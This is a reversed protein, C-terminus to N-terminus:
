DTTQPLRLGISEKRELTFLLSAQLFNKASGDDAKRYDFQRLVGIQMGLLSTFQYGLGAFFRNREFYPAQNTFFLEDFVVGYLTRPIIKNHNIPIVPNLRYRFRNRYNGNVWRQEIRFRHDVVVPDLKSKFSFQQWLRFEKTQLSKFEGPYSYTRYDGVAVLFSIKKGVSYGVGGKAEHYFFDAAPGQSRAQVEGFFFVHKTYQYNINVTEWSGLRDTQAFGDMYVCLSFVFILCHLGRKPLLKM